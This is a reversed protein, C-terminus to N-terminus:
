RKKTYEENEEKKETWLSSSKSERVAWLKFDRQDQKEKEKALDDESYKIQKGSRIIAHYLHQFWAHAQIGCQARSRLLAKWQNQFQSRTTRMRKWLKTKEEKRRKGQM